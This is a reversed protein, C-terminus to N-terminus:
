IAAVFARGAPSLDVAGDGVALFVTSVAIRMAPCGLFFGLGHGELITLVVARTTFQHHPKVIATASYCAVPLIYRPALSICLPSRDLLRDFFAAIAKEASLTFAFDRM